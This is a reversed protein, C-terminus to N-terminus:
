EDNVQLATLFEKCPNIGCKPLDKGDTINTIKFTRLPKVFRVETGYSCLSSLPYIDGGKEVLYTPWDYIDPTKWGPKENKLKIIHNIGFWQAFQSEQDAIYKLKQNSDVPEAYFIVKTRTGGAEIQVRLLGKLNINLGAKDLCLR